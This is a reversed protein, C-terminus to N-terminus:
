NKSYFPNAGRKSTLIFDSQNNTENASDSCLTVCNLVMLKGERENSEGPCRRRQKVEETPACVSGQVGM